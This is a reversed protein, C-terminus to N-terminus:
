RLSLMALCNLELLRFMCVKGLILQELAILSVHRTPEVCIVHSSLTLGM